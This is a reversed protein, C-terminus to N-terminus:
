CRKIADSCKVTGIASASAELLYGCVPIVPGNAGVCRGNGGSHLLTICLNM